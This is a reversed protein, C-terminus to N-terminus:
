PSNESNSIEGEEAPAGEGSDSVKGSTEEEDELVSECEEDDKPPDRMVMALKYGEPDHEMLYREDQPPVRKGAMIRRAIEMCRQQTKLQESLAELEASEPSEEDLMDLIGNSQKKQEARSLLAAEAQARQQEMNEVWQRSLEVRDASPATRGATKKEGGQVPKASAIGTNEGWLMRRIEMM